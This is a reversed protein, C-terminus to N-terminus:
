QRSNRITKKRKRERDRVRQIYDIGKKRERKDEKEKKEDEKKGDRKKFIM